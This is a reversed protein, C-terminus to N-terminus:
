IVQFNDSKIIKALCHYNLNKLYIEGEDRYSIERMIRNWKKDKEKGREKREEVTTTDKIM